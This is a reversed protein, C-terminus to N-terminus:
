GKAAEYAADFWDGFIGILALACGLLGLTCCDLIM